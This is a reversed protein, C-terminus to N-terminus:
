FIRGKDREQEIVIKGEGERREERRERGIGRERDRGGDNETERM